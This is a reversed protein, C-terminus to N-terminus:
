QKKKKYLEIIIYCIIVLTYIYLIYRSYSYFFQSILNLLIGFNEPKLICSVLATIFGLIVWGTIKRIVYIILIAFFNVIELIKDLKKMFKHNKLNDM